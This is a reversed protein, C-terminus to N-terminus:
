QSSSSKGVTASSGIPSELSTLCTGSLGDLKGERGLCHVEPLSAWSPQMRTDNDVCHPVAEDSATVVGLAAGQSLTLARRLREYKSCQGMRRMCEHRREHTCAAESWQMYDLRSTLAETGAVISWPRQDPGCPPCVRRLRMCWIQMMLKHMTDVAYRHANYPYTLLSSADCAAGCASSAAFGGFAGLCAMRCPSTSSIPPRHTRVKPMRCRSPCTTELSPATLGTVPQSNQSVM